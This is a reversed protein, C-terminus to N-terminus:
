FQLRHMMIKMGGLPREPAKVRTGAPKEPDPSRSTTRQASKARFSSFLRQVIYVLTVVALGLYLAPKIQSLDKVDKIDTLHKLRAVNCNDRIWLRTSEM